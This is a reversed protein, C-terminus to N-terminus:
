LAIHHGRELPLLAGASQERCIRGGPFVVVGEKVSLREKM